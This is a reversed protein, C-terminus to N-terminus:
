NHCCQCNNKLRVASEMMTIVVVEMVDNNDSVFSETLHALRDALICNPMGKAVAIRAVTRQARTDDNM